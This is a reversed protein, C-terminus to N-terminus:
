DFICYDARFPMAHAAADADFIAAPLLPSALRPLWGSARPTDRLPMPPLLSSFRCCRFSFLIIAALFFLLVTFLTISMLSHFTLYHCDAFAYCSLSYPSFISIIAYHRMAAHPLARRKACPLLLPSFLTHFYHFLSLLPSIAAYHCSFLMTLLSFPTHRCYYLIILLLAAIAAIILLFCDIPSFRLSFAAFPM